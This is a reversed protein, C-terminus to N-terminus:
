NDNKEWFKKIREVAESDTGSSRNSKDKVYATTGSPTPECETVPLVGSEGRPMEGALEGIRSCLEDIEGRLRIDPLAASVVCGIMGFIFCMFFHLVDSYGKKKAAAAMFLSLLVRLILLLALLIIAEQVHGNTINNLWEMPNM